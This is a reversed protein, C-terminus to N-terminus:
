ANSSGIINTFTHSLRDIYEVALDPRKIALEQIFGNLFEQFQWGGSIGTMAAIMAKCFERRAAERIEVDMMKAQICPSYTYATM